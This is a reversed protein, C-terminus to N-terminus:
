APRALARWAQQSAADDFRWQGQSGSTWWDQLTIAGISKLYAYDDALVEIRAKATALDTATNGTVVGRGYETVGCPKGTAKVYGYWTQFRPESRLPIFKGTKPDVTDQYTDITYVDAKKSLYGGATGPGGNRYAYSGAIHVVKIKSTAAHVRDAFPDFEALFAAVPEDSEAEHHLTIFSGSPMSKVYPEVDVDAQKVSIWPVAGSPVVSPDYKAPLTAPYFARADQIPGLAAVLASFPSDKARGGIRLVNTPPPPPPNQCAALAAELNAITQADVGHQNTLASVQEGLSSIQSVLPAKAADVREGSYAAVVALIDDTSTM